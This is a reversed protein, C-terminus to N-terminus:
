RARAGRCKPFDCCSWFENGVNRGRRAVKLEMPGTCRPCSPSPDSIPSLPPSAGRSKGELSARAQALMGGLKSGNVLQIGRGHAFAEAADTFRGSTVIYGTAARRFPMVGALERVVEVPVKSARWHKCQVLAKDGSRRLEMDVGGDAGAGGTAQVEFGQIRFAEAILTEFEQWSLADIAAAADGGATVDVFLARRTRRAAYSIGAAIVCAVPVVYQGLMALGRLMSGTMLQPLQQMGTATPMPQMAVTRLILTAVLGILLCAWWPLAAAIAYVAAEGNTTRPRRSRAM